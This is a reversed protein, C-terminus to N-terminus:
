ALLRPNGPGSVIATAPVTITIVGSFPAGSLLGSIPLGMPFSVELTDGVVCVPAGRGSPKFELSTVASNNGSNWLCAYPQDWNGGDFAVRVVAGSQVRAEWGPMGYRIPVNNLGRGAVRPDSPQLQLTGDANQAIVSCEYTNSAAMASRISSLFSGAAEELSETSAITRMSGRTVLHTVQKLKHGDFTAGPQVKALEAFEDAALTLCSTDWDEDLVSAATKTVAWTDVGVWIKGNDLTRWALGARDAAAVLAHSAKTSEREWHGFRTSPIVSSADLSEGCASLIDRIVTLVPTNSYHQADVTKSLGGSGGVIWAQTRGAFSGQTVVAGVFTYGDVSITVRGSLTVEGDLEVDAHWPGTRPKRIKVSLADNGNVTASM